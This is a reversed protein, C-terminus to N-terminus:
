YYIYIAGFWYLCTDVSHFCTYCECYFQIIKNSISYKSDDDIIQITAMSPEYNPINGSDSVVIFQLLFNETPEVINDNTIPIMIDQFEAGGGRLTITM